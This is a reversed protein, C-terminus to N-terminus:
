NIQYLTNIQTRKKKKKKIKISVQFAHPLRCLWPIWSLMAAHHYSFKYWFKKVIAVFFPFFDQVVINVPKNEFIDMETRLIAQSDSNLPHFRGQWNSNKKFNLQRKFFDSQNISEWYIKYVKCLLNLKSVYKFIDSQKEKKIQICIPKSGNKSIHKM